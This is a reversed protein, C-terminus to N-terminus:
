PSAEPKAPNVGATDVSTEGVDVRGLHVAAALDLLDDRFRDGASPRPNKEGRLYQPESPRGPLFAM